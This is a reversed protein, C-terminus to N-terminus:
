EQPKNPNHLDRSKMDKPKKGSNKFSNRADIDNEFYWKGKKYNYANVSMDPGYNEYSGKLNSDSPAINDFVIRKKNKQYRLLM